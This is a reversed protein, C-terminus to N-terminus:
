DPEYTGRSSTGPQLRRTAERHHESCLTSLYGEVNRLSGSAGCRQCVFESEALAADVLARVSARCADSPRKMGAARARQAVDDMSADEEEDALFCYYFRLTGFKEKIQVIRIHEGAQAGLEDVLSSCLRDVIGYWGPPLHSFVQPLAGFFLAPHSRVLREVLPDTPEDDM